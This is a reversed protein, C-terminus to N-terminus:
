VEVYSLFWNIGAVGWGEEDKIYIRGKDGWETWWSNQVIWYSETVMPDDSSGNIPEM